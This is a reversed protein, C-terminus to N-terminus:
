AFSLFDDGSFGQGYPEVCIMNGNQDIGYVIIQDTVNEVQERAWAIADTKKKFDDKTVCGTTEKIHPCERDAIKGEEETLVFAGFAIIKKSPIMAYFSIRSSFYKKDIM